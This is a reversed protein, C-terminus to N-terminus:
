VVPRLRQRVKVHRNPQRRRRLSGDHVSALCSEAEAVEAAGRMVQRHQLRPAGLADVLWLYMATITCATVTYAMVIYAMVTYTRRSRRRAMVIHTTITCAMVIYAMVIYGMVIYAMVTYAMVIYAMVRYAMVIYAMVRYAM